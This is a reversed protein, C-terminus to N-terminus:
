RKINLYWRSFTFKKNRFSRYDVVRKQYKSVMTVFKLTSNFIAYSSNLFESQPKTLHTLFSIYFCIKHYLKM